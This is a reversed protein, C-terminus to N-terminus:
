VIMPREILQRQLLDIMSRAVLQSLFFPGKLNVDMVEDYSEETTELLDLRVRPAMGANNVLLDIRGLRSLTEEMLRKRDDPSSIDAQVALAQPAGAAEAERVADAAADQNGRYNVVVSWGLRALALTIGRGIGRGGGTILAVKNNM